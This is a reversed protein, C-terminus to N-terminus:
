FSRVMGTTLANLAKPRNLVAVCLPGRREALIESDACQTGAVSM